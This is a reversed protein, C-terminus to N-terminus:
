KCRIGRSKESVFGFGQEICTQFANIEADAIQPIVIFFDVVQIERCCALIDGVEHSQILPAALNLDGNNSVIVVGVANIGHNSVPLGGTNFVDVGDTFDVTTTGAVSGIVKLAAVLVFPFGTFAQCLIIQGFGTVHGKSINENAPIAIVVEAAHIPFFGNGEVRYEVRADMIQVNQFVTIQLFWRCEAIGATGVRDIIQAFNKVFHSTAFASFETNGIADFGHFLARVVREGLSQRM